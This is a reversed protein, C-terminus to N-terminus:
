VHIHIKMKGEWFPHCAIYKGICGLSRRMGDVSIGRTIMWLRLPGQPPTPRTGDSPWKPHNHGSVPIGRHSSKNTHQTHAHPLMHLAAKWCHVTTPFPVHTQLQPTNALEERWAHFWKAREWCYRFLEGEESLTNRVREQRSMGFVVESHRLTNHKNEPILM